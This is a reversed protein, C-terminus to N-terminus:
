FILIYKGVTQILQYATNIMTQTFLIITTEVIRFIFIEQEDIKNMSERSYKKFYSHQQKTHSTDKLINERNKFIYISSFLPINFMKKFVPM